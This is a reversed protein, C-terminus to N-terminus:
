PYTQNVYIPTDYRFDGNEDRQTQINSPVQIKDWGRTDWNEKYNKADSGRKTNLRDAPKEAYKFNWEGNLSKYWKSNMEDKDDLASKENVLAKDPTEYPTFTSRANERNVEVTDIQDYWEEGAFQKDAAKVELTLGEVGGNWINCRFHRGFGIIYNSKKKENRRRRSM